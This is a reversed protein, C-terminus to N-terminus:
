VTAPIVALEDFSLSAFLRDVVGAQALRRIELEATLLQNPATGLVPATQLAALASPDLGLRPSVLGSSTWTQSAPSLSALVTLPVRDGGADQRPSPLTATITPLTFTRPAPQGATVTAPPVSVPEPVRRVGVVLSEGM